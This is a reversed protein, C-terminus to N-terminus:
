FMDMPGVSHIKLALMCHSPFEMAFVWVGSLLVFLAFIWNDQSFSAVGPFPCWLQCIFAFMLCADLPVCAHIHMYAIQETSLQVHVPFAQLQGYRIKASSDFLM